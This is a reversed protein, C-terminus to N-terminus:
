TLVKWWTKESLPNEPKPRLVPQAHPGLDLSHLYESPKMIRVSKSKDRLRAIMQKDFTLLVEVPVLEAEALTRCDAAGGHSIRLESARASVVAEPLPDAVDLMLAGAVANHAELRARDRICKYEAEAAPLLTYTIDTFLWARLLAAREPAIETNDRAPDYDDWMAEMYFTVCNADLAVQHDASM